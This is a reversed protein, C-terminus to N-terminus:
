SNRQHFHLFNLVVLFFRWFLQLFLASTGIDGWKQVVANSDEYFKALTNIDSNVSVTQGAAQTQSTQQATPVSSQVGGSQSMNAVSNQYNAYNQLYMPNYYGSYPNSAQYGNIYSPCNSNLGSSGGYLMFEMNALSNIPLTM